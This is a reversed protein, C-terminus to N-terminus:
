GGREGADAPQENAAAAKGSVEALESLCGNCLSFSSSSHSLEKHYTVDVIAIGDYCANCYKTSVDRTIYIM